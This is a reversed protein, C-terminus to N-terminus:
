REDLIRWLDAHAACLHLRATATTRALKARARPLTDGHREYQEAFCEDCPTPTKIPTWKPPQGHREARYQETNYLKSLERRARQPEDFLATM